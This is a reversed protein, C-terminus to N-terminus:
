TAPVIKVRVCFRHLQGYFFAWTVDFVNPGKKESLQKPFVRRWLQYIVYPVAFVVAACIAILCLFFWFLGAGAKESITRLIPNRSDAMKGMLTIFGIIIGLDVIVVAAIFAIFSFESSIISSDIVDSYSKGQSLEFSVSQWIDYAGMGVTVTVFALGAGLVIVCLASVYMWVFDCVTTPKWPLHTIGVQGFLEHCFRYSQVGMSDESFTFTKEM